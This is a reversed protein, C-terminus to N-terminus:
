RLWILARAFSLFSLYCNREEHRRELTPVGGLVSRTGVGWSGIGEGRLWAGKAGKVNKTRKTTGREHGRV